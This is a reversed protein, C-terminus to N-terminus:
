YRKNTNKGLENFLKSKREKKVSKIELDYEKFIDIYYQAQSKIGTLTHSNNCEFSLHKFGGNPGYTVVIDHANKLKIKEEAQRMEIEKLYDEDIIKLGKWLVDLQKSNDFIVTIFNDNNRSWIGKRGIAYGKIGVVLGEGYKTLDETLEVRIKM